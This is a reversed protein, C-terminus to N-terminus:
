KNDEDLRIEKEIQLRSTPPEGMLTYDMMSVTETPRISGRTPAFNLNKVELNFLASTLKINRFFM